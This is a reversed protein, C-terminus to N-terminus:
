LMYRGAAIAVCCTTTANAYAPEGRCVALSRLYGVPERDLRSTAKDREMMPLSLLFAATSLRWSLCVFLGIAHPEM